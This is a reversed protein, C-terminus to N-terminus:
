DWVTLQWGAHLIVAKFDIENSNRAPVTNNMGSAIGRRGFQSYTDRSGNPRARAIKPMTRHDGGNIEPSCGISSGTPVPSFGITDPNCPPDTVSAGTRCRGECGRIRFDLQLNGRVTTKMSPPYSCLPM